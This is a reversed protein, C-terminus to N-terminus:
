YKICLLNTALFTKCRYLVDFAFNASTFVGGIKEDKQEFITPFGLLNDIIHYFFAIDSILLM